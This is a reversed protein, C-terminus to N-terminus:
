KNRKRHFALIGVAVGGITAATVLAAVKHESVVAKPKEFITLKYGAETQTHDVELLALPHIERDTPTDGSIVVTDTVGDTNPRASIQNGSQRDLFLVEPREIHEPNSM